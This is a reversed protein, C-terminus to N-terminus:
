ADDVGADDPEYTQNALRREYKVIIASVDPDGLRDEAIKLQKIAESYIKYSGTRKYYEIAEECRGRFFLYPQILTDSM